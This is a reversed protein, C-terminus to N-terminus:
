RVLVTTRAVGANNHPGEWARVEIEHIGRERPVMTGTYRGTAADYTMRQLPQRKGNVTVQYEVETDAARWPGDVSLPCGCMMTVVAQLPVDRDRQASSFAAPEVLDVILGPLELIWGDGRSVDRGPLIWQSSTVTTAAQPQSLPGTVSALVHRPHDLDLTARFVGSDPSSLQRDGEVGGALIRQTDGTTGQTLGQALVEGTEVDSLVVRASAAYGGMFKAGRALVRVDVHTTEASASPAAASLATALLFVAIARHM